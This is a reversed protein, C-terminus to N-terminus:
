DPELGFTYQLKLLTLHYLITVVASSSADTALAEQTAARRQKKGGPSSAARRRADTETILPCVLYVHVSVFVSHFYMYLNILYSIVDEFQHSAWCQSRPNQETKGATDIEEEEEISQEMEEQVEEKQEKEKLKYDM